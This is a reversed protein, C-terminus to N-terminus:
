ILWIEVVYTLSVDPLTPSVAMLTLKCWKWGDICALLSPAWKPWCLSAAHKDTPVPHTKCSWRGHAEAENQGQSAVVAEVNPHGLGAFESSSIEALKCQENSELDEKDRKAGKEQGPYIPSCVIVINPSSYAHSGSECIRLYASSSLCSAMFTEALSCPQRVNGSKIISAHVTHQAWHLISAFVHGQRHWHIIIRYFRIVHCNDSLSDM